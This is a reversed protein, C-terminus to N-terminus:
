KAKGNKEKGEAEEVADVLARRMAGSLTGEEGREWKSTVVYRVTDWM